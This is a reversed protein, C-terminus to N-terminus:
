NQQGPVVLTKPALKPLFNNGKLQQIYNQNENNIQQSAKNNTPRNNIERRLEDIQMQLQRFDQRAGM